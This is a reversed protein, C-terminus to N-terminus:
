AANQELLSSAYVKAEALDGGALEALENQRASFDTLYRIKSSTKDNEVSKSISIHNDALSAVLPQHTICFVQTKISLDKLLLAISRSVRGSVGSDIEDFIFTRSDDSSSLMTKLALVFRSMEGGSAVKELPLMPQGPNASFLFQVSDFGNVSPENQTIQIQFRINILGLSTLLNIIKSEFKIAVQKRLLSLKQNNTNCQLKAISEQAEAEIFKNDINSNYFSEQLENRKNILESLNLGHKRQLGKLTELRKQIDNLRNPQSELLLTYDELSRIFDKVYDYIDLANEYKDSLTLDLSTLSKLEYISDSIQDLTSPFEDSGEKLRLLLKNFGEQLNVINALRDQENKLLEYENPDELKSNELEDLLEKLQENKLHIQDREDKIKNLKLSAKSWVEWGQRVKNLSSKIRSGGYKDLFNIHQSALNTRYSFGQSTFEILFPRLQLIQNRNIYIGNVRCKSKIRDDKIRCERTIVLESEDIDIQNEILWKKIQDSISFVGEILFYKDASNLLRLFTSSQGGGLLVDLSDLLISKGSGTEGTIVTFGKEFPLEQSDFLSINEFKLSTLVILLTVVM